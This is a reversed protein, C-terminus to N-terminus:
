IHKMMKHCNEMGLNYSFVINSTYFSKYTHLRFQSMQQLTGLIKSYGGTYLLNSTMIPVSYYM